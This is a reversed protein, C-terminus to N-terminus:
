IMSRILGHVACELTAQLVSTMMARHWGADIRHEALRHPLPCSPHVGLAALLETGHLHAADYHILLSGTTPNWSAAQVGTWASLRRVTEQARQRDQKLESLRVRLRGKVVHVYVRDAM